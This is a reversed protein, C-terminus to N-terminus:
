NIKSIRRDIVKEWSDKKLLKEEKHKGTPEEYPQNEIEGFKEIFTVKKYDVKLLITKTRITLRVGPNIREAASVKGKPNALIYRKIQNLAELGNKISEELELREKLCTLAEEKKGSASLINDRLKLERLEEQQIKIMEQLAIMEQRVGPDIGVEIETPIESISGINKAKVEEGARIRGGLIVGRKGELVIVNEGVDVNSHIISDAVYVNGRVEVNTNEIFKCKLNGNAYIYGRKGRIGYKVEIDKEARITANEVGGNILVSEGSIVRFGERVDGEIVVTGIFHINGVNMNVDGKVRYITEVGIKEDKWVVYGNATSILTKGDDIIQTNQGAPLSIDVGDRAPIQKGTITTGPIGKTPEKKTALVEGQHVNEILGLDRYDVRDALDTLLRPKLTKTFRYECIADKGDIPPTGEAVLIPEGMIKQDIIQSIVEGKIGYVVGENWLKHMIVNVDLLRGGEGFSNIQLFAKLNDPSIEIELDEKKKKKKQEKSEDM